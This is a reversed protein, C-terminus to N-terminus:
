QVTLVTVTEPDDLSTSNVIVESEERRQFFAPVDSKAVTATTLCPWEYGHAFELAIERDLTWCFGDRNWDLHSRFIKLREDLSNFETLEADSM